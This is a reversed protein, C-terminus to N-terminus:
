LSRNPEEIQLVYLSRAGRKSGGVVDRLEKVELRIPQGRRLHSMGGVTGSIDLFGSTALYNGNTTFLLYMAPMLSCSFQLLLKLM